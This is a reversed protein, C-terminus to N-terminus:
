IKANNLAIRFLLKLKSGSYFTQIRLEASCDCTDTDAKTDEIGGNPFPMAIFTCSIATGQWNKKKKKLLLKILKSKRIIKIFLVFNQLYEFYNLASYFFFRTSM